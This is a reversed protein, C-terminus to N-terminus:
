TWHTYKCSLLIFTVGKLTYNLSKQCICITIYSSGGNLCLVKGDSLPDQLMKVTM